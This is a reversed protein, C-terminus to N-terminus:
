GENPRRKCVSCTALSAGNWHGCGCYWDHSEKLQRNEERLRENEAALLAHMEKLKDHAEKTIGEFVTVGGPYCHPCYLDRCQLVNGCRDCISKEVGMSLTNDLSDM